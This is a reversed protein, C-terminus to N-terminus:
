LESKLASILLLMRPLAVMRTSLATQFTILCVALTFTSKRLYDFLEWRVVFYFM